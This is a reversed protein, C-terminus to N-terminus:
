IFLFSPPADVRERGAESQQGRIRLGFIFLYRPSPSVFRGYDRRKSRTFFWARMARACWFTRELLLVFGPTVFTM